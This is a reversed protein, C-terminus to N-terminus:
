LSREAHKRGFTFLKTSRRTVVHRTKQLARDAYKIWGRAIVRQFREKNFICMKCTNKCHVDGNNISWFDNIAWWSNDWCRKNRCAVQKTWRSHCSTGRVCHVVATWRYERRHCSWWNSFIYISTAWCTSCNASWSIIWCARTSVKWNSTSRTQRDIIQSDWRILVKHAETARDNVM